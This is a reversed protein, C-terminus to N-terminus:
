RCAEEMMNVMAAFDTLISESFADLPKSEDPALLESAHMQLVDWASSTRVQLLENTPDPPGDSDSGSDSSSAAHQRLLDDMVHQYYHAKRTPRGTVMRDLRTRDELRRDMYGSRSWMAFMHRAQERGMAMAKAQTKLWQEKAQDSVPSKEKSSETAASSFRVAGLKYKGKLGFMLKAKNLQSKRSDGEALLDGEDRNLLRYMSTRMSGSACYAEALMWCYMVDKAVSQLENSNRADESSSSDEDRLYVLEKEVLECFQAAYVLRSQGAL